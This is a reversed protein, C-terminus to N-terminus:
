SFTTLHSITADDRDLAPLPALSPTLLLGKMRGPKQTFFSSSQMDRSNLLEDMFDMLRPVREEITETRLVFLLVPCSKQDEETM